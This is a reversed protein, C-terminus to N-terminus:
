TRTAPLLLWCHSASEIIVFGYFKNSTSFLQRAPSRLPSPSFDLFRIDCHKLRRKERKWGITKSNNRYRERELERRKEKNRRASCRFRPM